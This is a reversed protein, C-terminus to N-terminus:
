VVKKWFDHFKKILNRPPYYHRNYFIICNPTYKYSRGISIESYGTKKISKIAQQIVVQGIQIVCVSHATGHSMLLDASRKYFDIGDKGGDLAIYPDYISVEKILSKILRTPIRPPNSVILDIKQNLNDGWNSILFQARDNVRHNRANKEAINLISQDIDIGIGTADPRELLLSILICGSGTGCDLIVPNQINKIQELAHDVTTETEFGPKFINSAIQFERGRFMALNMIRELPERRSRRLIFQNIQELLNQDVSNFPLEKNKNYEGSILPCACFLDYDNEPNQIGIKRMNEFEPIFFAKINDM